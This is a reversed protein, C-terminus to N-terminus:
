PQVTGDTVAKKQKNYVITLIEKGVKDNGLGHWVEKWTKVLDDKTKCSNIWGVQEAYTVGDDFTLNGDTDEDEIIIGFGSTFTYRKGYSSMSALVQISNMQNTKELKPVDFTTGSDTYGYGTIILTVRKGTEITSEKWRYSFGHKSIVPSYQKQLDELPAYSNSYGKKTRQVPKFDKQMESFHIDFLMKSERTEMELQLAIVRELKDIDLDKNIAMEVLRGSETVEPQVVVTKIKQKAVAKEEMQREGKFNNEPLQWIEFALIMEGRAIDGNRFKHM